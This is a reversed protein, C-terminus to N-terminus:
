KGITFGLVSTTARGTAIYQAWTNLTVGVFGGAAFEAIKVGAKKYLNESVKQHEGGAESSFNRASIFKSGLRRIQPVMTRFPYFVGFRHCCSTKKKIEMPWFKWRKFRRNIGECVIVSGSDFKQILWGNKADEWRRIGRGKWDVCLSCGM